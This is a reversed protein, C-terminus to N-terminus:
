KIVLEARTEDSLRLALITSLNYLKKSNRGTGTRHPLIRGDQVARRFWTGYLRFADRESIEGSIHGCRELAKTAGLEAATANIRELNSPNM